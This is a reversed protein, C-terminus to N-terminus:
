KDNTKFDFILIECYADVGDIYEEDAGALKASNIAFAPYDATVSELKYRVVNAINIADEYIKSIISIQVNCNDEGRGDKTYDPSIGLRKYVIFPYRPTGDPIVLPYVRDGILAKIAPTSLTSVIHKGILLSM